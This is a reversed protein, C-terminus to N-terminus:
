GAVAVIQLVLSPVQPDKKWKIFSVTTFIQIIQLHVNDCSLLLMSRRANRDDNALISILRHQFRPLTLLPLGAASTM